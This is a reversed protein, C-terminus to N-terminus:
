IKTEGRMYSLIAMQFRPDKAIRQTDEQTPNLGNAISVKRAIKEMAGIFVHRATAHNMKDGSLTMLESIDSYSCAGEIDSISANGHAAKHGQPMM